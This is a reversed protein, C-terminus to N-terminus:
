LNYSSLTVVKAVTAAATACTGYGIGFSAPNSYTSNSDNIMHFAGSSWVGTTYIFQRYSSAGLYSSGALIATTYFLPIWTGSEGFRIRVNRYSSGVAASLQIGIITGNALDAETIKVSDTDVTLNTYGYGTNYPSVGKTSDTTV